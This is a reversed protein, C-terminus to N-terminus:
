GPLSEVPRIPRSTLVFFRLLLAASVVVLSATLGLWLGVAGLDAPFALAWAVPFGVGWHAAVNALFPVRVDGAGRLAGSMVVQLGDFLQFFAAIRLLLAAQVAYTENPTLLRAVPLALTLFAVSTALMFISGVGAGVLGARRPGRADAAEGAQAGIAQGVRVSTASAVGAVAMFTFSALQLAVQHSGAALAGLRGAMIGTLSFVGTEALQQLGLPVGLRVLLRPSVPRAPAGAGRLEPTTAVPRLLSLALMATSASTAIAAGFAGLPPIGLAPLGVAVLGEDGWVLLADAAANVINAAIASRLIVSTRRYAQLTSRAAIYLLIFAASPVRGIAYDIAREQLPREVGFWHLAYCVAVALLGVPLGVVIAGRAGLRWWAAARAHDGAGSAQSVLPDLASPIGIGLSLVAFAVANGLAVGGLDTGSRSGVFATDVLGMAMIAAQAVVLPAALRATEAAEQRLSM